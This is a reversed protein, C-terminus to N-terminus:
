MVCLVVALLFLIRLSTECVVFKEPWGERAPASQEVTTMQKQENVFVNNRKDQNGVVSSVMALNWSLLSVLYGLMERMKEIPKNRVRDAFEQAALEVLGEINLYIAAALLEYLPDRDLVVFENDWLELEEKEKESFLKKKDGVHKNCYEIVKVFVDATVNPIPIIGDACDDEIMNKITESQLLSAEEVIFVRGDGTKLTLMKVNETFPAQQIEQNDEVMVAKDKDKYSGVTVKEMSEEVELTDDIPKKSM